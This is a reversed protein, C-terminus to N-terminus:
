KENGLYVSVILSLCCYYTWPSWCTREDPRDVRPRFCTMIQVVASFCRALDLPNAIINNNKKPHSINSRLAFAMPYFPPRDWPILFKCPHCDCAQEPLFFPGECCVTTYKYACQRRNEPDIISKSSDLGALSPNQNVPSSDGDTNICFAGGRTRLKKSPLADDRSSSCQDLATTYPDSESFMASSDDNDM